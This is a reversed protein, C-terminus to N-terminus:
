KNQESIVYEKASSKSFNLDVAICVYNLVEEVDLERSFNGTYLAHKDLRDTKIRIGFQREIEYFVERIPVATFLFINNKWSIEPYTEINQHVLISGNRQIEAKSNPKLVVSDKTKSTVKVSGTICTVKYVENRSFINFSTGLVQTQGNASTVSFKKGKEVEFFGEGEFNIERSFRWWYPHYSLKSDANLNITSGDPLTALQHKANPTQITVTYFKMFSAFGLLVLFSAAVAWTTAKYNIKISRGAPKADIKSSLESWIEASSKKWTFSGGAFFEKSHQDANIPKHEKNTKM